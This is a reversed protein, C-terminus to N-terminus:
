NQIDYISTLYGISFFVIMITLEIMYNLKNM